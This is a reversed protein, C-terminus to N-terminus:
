IAALATEIDSTLSVTGGTIYGTSLAYSVTTLGDITANIAGINSMTGTIQTAAGNSITHAKYGALLYSAVATDGTTDGFKSPIANVTVKSLVKGSSPTASQVATTPTLTKEELVIKVTGSGNHYGAPVTYSTTTASLTTNVAGNDAMTGTLKVAGGNSISHATVGTLLNSAVATDGTTDGFKSPIANVTVKSLVKGSTPTISQVATSPTASKTELTITVTGSGSHYGAPITYSQKGTTADLSTSVAGNNAMSGTIQVAAGGSITHAKYGSLVHSAVATDGTTDGFKSPIANITVKSLVKGSSPTASQVSTSPTYTQEELVIKVSGSGSHYGAPVTYSTTSADLTKSVNGNNTMSGEVVAGSANVIVKGSLVDGAAATVSTVDQYASPIANITVKSLVKGSTPTISQAATSPTASKEELVIKVIGTGDHRGAPITYSTSSTSLTNTAAAIVPLTGTVQGTTNVFVKGYTVDSATADAGTTDKYNGPIAGINVVNIVKGTTANITQASTSPTASVSELAIKVIGSGNHYGTPVAYSTSTADLTKSVAGNNVMTGAVNSGTADVFVKNTLVESATATVASVNQYAEPIPDITVDSLGYYGADPTVSQQQKTPTRTKSQLSYNGGGAVGSVTGSGNHYGEPITYTDGEQVTASVAGQNAINSIASALADLKATSTALGFDILKDRITNRANTLRTIETSTSM